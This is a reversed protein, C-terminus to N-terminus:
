MYGLAVILPTQGRMLVTLVGTGSVRLRVTTTNTQNFEGHSLEVRHQTHPPSVVPRARTETAALTGCRPSGVHPHTVHKIVRTTHQGHLHCHSRNSHVHTTTTHTPTTDCVVQQSRRECVMEGWM